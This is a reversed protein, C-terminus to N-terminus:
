ACSAHFRSQAGLSIRPALRSGGRRPFGRAKRLSRQLSGNPASRQGARDGDGFLTPNFALILEGHRPATDLTGAHDLADMSLFDGIMAGALLEIM